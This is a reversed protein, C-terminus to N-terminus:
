TATPDTSPDLMEEADLLGGDPAQGLFEVDTDPGVIAKLQAALRRGDVNFADIETPSDGLHHYRVIWAKFEAALENSLGVESCSVEGHRWGGTQRPWAAWIGSSAYEAM